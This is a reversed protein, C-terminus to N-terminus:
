RRPPANAVTFRVEECACADSASKFNWILAYGDAQKVLAYNAPAPLFPSDLKVSVYDKGQDEEM